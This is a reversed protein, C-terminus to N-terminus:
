TGTEHVGNLICLKLSYLISAVSFSRGKFSFLAFWIGSIDRYTLMDKIKSGFHLLQSVGVCLIYYGLEELFCAM